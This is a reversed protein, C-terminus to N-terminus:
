EVTYTFSEADHWEGGYKVQVKITNVGEAYASAQCNFTKYNGDVTGNKYTLTANDMDVMVMRVGQVDVGTVVTVNLRRAKGSTAAPSVSYVTTDLSADVLNVTFKYANDINEWTYDYKAIVKMEVDATIKTNVTWIEYAAERDLEHCQTGDAKYATVSVAEHRRTYTRTNGEPDIFQVKAAYNGDVNNIKLTFTNSTSASPTWEVSTIAGKTETPKLALATIAANLENAAKNIVSQQSAKLDKAVANAAALKAQMASWSAETYLAQDKTGALAIAANLATYDADKETLTTAAVLASTANNIIEQDDETLDRSVANANALATRLASISADTYISLDGTLVKNAAAIAADLATYSAPNSVSKLELSDEWKLVNRQQLSATALQSMSSYDGVRRPDQVYNWNIGAFLADVKALSDETYLSRDIAEFAAKAAREQTYDWPKFVPNNNLNRLAEAKADVVSQNKAPTARFEPTNASAITDNATNVFDETLYQSYTSLTTNLYAIANDVATFSALAELESIANTLADAIADLVDQQEKTYVTSQATKAANYKQTANAWSEATWDSATLEDYAKIAANLKDYSAGAPVLKGYADNLAATAADIRVQDNKKTLGSTGYITNAEALKTAMANYSEATYLDSNVATAKDIATKLETTNAPLLELDNVAKTIAAAYGDVTEQNKKKLGSVVASVAEKVAAASDSTYYNELDSDSPVSAKANEVATYDADAEILDSKAKVLANKANDIQGQQSEKLGEPVAKASALATTFASWTNPTFWASNNAGIFTDADAIAAKLETYNADNEVVKPTLKNIANTLADAKADIEDQHTYDLNSAVANAAALATQYATWNADQEYNEASIAAAAAKANNLKGYNALKPTMVNFGNELATKAATIADQSEANKNTLMDAAAALATTFASTNDYNSVVTNKVSDYYTQLGSYDLEVNDSKVTLTINTGTLDFYQDDSFYCYALSGIAEPTAKGDPCAGVYMGGQKNTARRINAEPMTFKYTDGPQADDPIQVPFYILPTDEDELICTDEAEMDPWLDYKYYGWGLTRAEASDTIRGGSTKFPVNGDDDYCFNLDNFFGKDDSMSSVTNTVIGFNSECYSVYEHDTNLVVMKKVRATTADTSTDATYIEAADLIRDDYYLMSAFHGTYYNNTAHIAIMVRQGPEVEMSGTMSDEWVAPDYKTKSTWKAGSDIASATVWVKVQYKATDKNGNASAAVAFTGLVMAIALLVSLVKKAIKM